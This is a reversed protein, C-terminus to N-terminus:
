GGTGLRVAIAYPYTTGPTGTHDTFTTSTNGTNSTLVHEYRGIRGPESADKRYIRYGTIQEKGEEQEDWLLRVTTRDVMEIRLNSPRQPWTARPGPHHHRSPTSCPTRAKWARRCGSPTRSSGSRSEFSNEREPHGTISQVEHGQDLLLRNIYRGTYGTTGTVPHKM